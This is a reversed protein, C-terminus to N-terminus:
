EGAMKAIEERLIRAVASAASKEVQQNFRPELSDLRKELSDMRALVAKESKSTQEPQVAASEAPAQEPRANKLAESMANTLMSSIRGLLPSGESLLDEMPSVAQSAGPKELADLRALAASLSEEYSALQEKLAAAEAKALAAESRATAAELRASKAEAKANEAELRANEVEAKASEGATDHEEPAAAMEAPGSIDSAQLDNAMIEEAPEQASEEAGPGVDGDQMDSEVLAETEQIDSGAVLGADPMGAVLELEAEPIEDVAAMEPEPQLEGASLEGALVEDLGAAVDAVLEDPVAADAGDMDAGAIQYDTVMSDEAMLDADQMEAMAELDSDSLGPDNASGSDAQIEDVVQESALIEDLGAAVDAVLDEPVEEVAGSDIGASAVLEDTIMTDSAMLDDEQMEAPAGPDEPIEETVAEMAPLEEEVNDALEDGSDETVLGDEPLASLDEPIMDEAQEPLIDEPLATEPMEIGECTLDSELDASMAQISDDGVAALHDQEAADLIDDLEGDLDPLEAATEAVAGALDEGNVALDDDALSEPGSDMGVDEAQPLDESIVAALEADLDPATGPDTDTQAPTQGAGVAAIAADDPGSDLHEDLGALLDDEQATVDVAQSLNQAIEEAVPEEAATVGTAQEPDPFDPIDPLDLAAADEPLDPEPNDAPASSVASELDADLGALLDDEIAALDQDAQPALETAAQDVDDLGIEVQGASALVADLDGALDAGLDADLDPAATDQEPPAAAERAPEAMEPADLDFDALEADLGAVLDDSVQPEPVTAESVAAPAPEMADLDFDPIELEDPLGAAPDPGGAPAQAQAAPAAPQEAIASDLDALFDAEAEAAKAIPDVFDPDAAPASALPDPLDPDPAAVKKPTAPKITAAKEAFLDDLEDLTADIAEEPSEVAPAAPAPADAAQFPDDAGGAPEDFLSDLESGLDADGGEGPTPGSLPEAALAQAGTDAVQAIEPEAAAEPLDLDLEGVDGSAPSDDGFDFGDLINNLVDEESQPQEPTSAEAPVPAPAAAKVPKPEPTTVGNLLEDVANDLGPSEANGAEAGDFDPMDASLDGEAAAGAKADGPQLPIDLDGFLKDVDGMASMDLKENPDVVHDVPLSGKVPASADTDPQPKAAESDASDDMQALLADIEEDASDDAPMVASGDNLDQIQSDLSSEQKKAPKAPAPAPAEEPAQQAVPSAQPEDPILDLIGGDSSDDPSNGKEILDTLDIIEEEVPEKKRAM